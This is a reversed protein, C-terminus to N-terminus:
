SWAQIIIDAAKEGIAYCTASTHTGPLLPIMSADAVRLGEVGFVKLDSGVVGGLERPMMAATCCPHQFSAVTADRVWERIQEEDQVEGGPATEVVGMARMTPTSYVRRMLPVFSAVIDMDVPNELTGYTIVPEADHDDPDLLVSGRSLPKLLFGVGPPGQFPAEFIPHTPNELAAALVKLQALYGNVVSKSAGAPLYSAAEGSAVQRRVSSAIDKYSTTINALPLYVATNGLGLTYPGRSPTAYFAEISERLYTENTILM